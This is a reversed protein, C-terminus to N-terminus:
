RRARSACLWRRKLIGAESSEARRRARGSCPLVRKHPECIQRPPRIAAEPATPGPGFAGRIWLDRGGGGGRKKAGGAGGSLAGYEAGQAPRPSRSPGSRCGSAVGAAQRAMHSTFVDEKRSPFCPPAEERGGTISNPRVLDRLSYLSKSAGRSMVCTEGELLLCVECRRVVICAYTRTLFCSHVIM